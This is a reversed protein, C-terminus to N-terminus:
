QIYLSDYAPSVCNRRCRICQSENFTVSPQAFRPGQIPWLRLYVHGNPHRTDAKRAAALPHRISTSCNAMAPAPSLKTSLYAEAKGEM